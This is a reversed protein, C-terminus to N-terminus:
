SPIAVAIPVVKLNRTAEWALRMAEESYRGAYNAMDIEGLKELDLLLLLQASLAEPCKGEGSLQAAKAQVEARLTTVRSGAWRKTRDNGEPFMFKESM